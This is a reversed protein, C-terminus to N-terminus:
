TEVEYPWYNRGEGNTYYEILEAQKEQKWVRGAATEDCYQHCTGTQTKPGCLNAINWPVRGSGYQSANDLHAKEFRYAPRSCGCRECVIYDTKEAARRDVESRVRDTIKTHDGRKRKLRRSSTQSEKTVPRREFM